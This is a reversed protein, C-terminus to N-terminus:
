KAKEWKRGLKWMRTGMVENEVEGEGQRGDGTIREMDGARMGVRKEEM